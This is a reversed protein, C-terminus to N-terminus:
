RRSEADPASSLELHACKHDRYRSCAPPKSIDCIRVAGSQPASRAPPTTTETRSGTHRGPRTSTSRQSDIRVSPPPIRDLTCLVREGLLSRRAPPTSHARARTTRVGTIRLTSRTRASRKGRRSADQAAALRFRRAPPTSGAHTM